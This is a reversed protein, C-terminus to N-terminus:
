CVDARIYNSRKQPPLEGRIYQEFYQDRGKQICLLSDIYKWISPHDIGLVARMRRHAAEAHNKTRDQRNLTREYVSWTQPQFMASLRTERTPHGVNTSEFWELTGLLEDPLADSLNILALDLQDIPVFAMSVIM